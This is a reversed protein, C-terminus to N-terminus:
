RFARVYTNTTNVNSKVRFKFLRIQSRKVYGIAGNTFVVQYYGNIKQSNLILKTNKMLRGIRKGNGTADSYIYTLTKTKATRYLTVQPASSVKGNNKNKKPKTAVGYRFERDLKVCDAAVYGTGLSGTGYRIQYYGGSQGTVLVRTGTPAVTNAGYGPGTYIWTTSSIEGNSANDGSTTGGSTVSVYASRVYAYGGNYRIKYWEGVTDVITVSTGRAYQGLQIGQLSATSRIFLADATTVGYKIEPKQKKGAKVTLRCKAEYGNATIATITTKGKKKCTVIGFEDVSAVTPDSSTWYVVKNYADAPLVTAGLRFMKGEKKTLKTKNLTIGTTVQRVNVRVKDSVVGFHNDKATITIYCNGSGVTVIRETYTDYYAVKPNSTTWVVEKETTYDPNFQYGIQIKQGNYSTINHKDLTVAYPAAIVKVLIEARMGNYATAYVWTEGIAKAHIKGYSDVSLIADNSVSWTVKTDAPVTEGGNFVPSLTYDENLYLTTRDKEFRVDKVVTKIYVLAEATYISGDAMKMSATVTVLGAPADKAVTAVGKSDVTVYPSDSAWTIKGEIADEPSLKTEFAISTGPYVESREPTMSLSIGDGGVVIQIMGVAPTGYGDAGYGGSLCKAYIYTMGKGTATVKGNEDVVAVSEDESGWLLTKDYANQPEIVAKLQITEGIRKAYITEASDTDVRRVEVTEVPAKVLVEARAFADHEQGKEDVWRITGKVYTFGGSVATIKGESDISAIEPDDSEWTIGTYEANAPVPAASIFTSQGKWLEYRTESLEVGNVSQKVTVKIKARLGNYAAAYIYTTGPAKATVIGTANVSAVNENGSTWILATDYPLSNGGNWKVYGSLDDTNGTYIIMEDETFEISEADQLATVTLKASATLEGVTTTGTIIFRGAQLPTFSISDYNQTLIYDTNETAEQGDLTVTYTVEANKPAKIVGVQITEETVLEAMTEEFALSTRGYVTVLFAMESGDPAAATVYTIGEAVAVVSNGVIKAIAANETSWTVKGAVAQVDPLVKTETGGIQLVAEWIIDLSEETFGGQSVAVLFNVKSGDPATVTVTTNGKGQAYVIGDTVTAVSADETTWTFTAPDAQIAGCTDEVLKSLDKYADQASDLTLNIVRSEGDKLRVGSIDAAEVTVTFIVKTGDPANATVVATGAARAVLVGSLAAVISEDSNSWTIQDRLAKDNPNMPQTDDLAGTLSVTIYQWLDEIEKGVLKLAIQADEGEVTVKPAALVKVSVALESGDPATAIAATEGEAVAQVLYNGAIRAIGEELISWTVSGGDVTVEPLERSEKGTVDLQLVIQSSDFSDKDLFTGASVTVVFQVESGDPAEVTVITHGTSVAKVTGNAVVAVTENQSRWTFGKVDAGAVTTSAVANSLDKAANTKSDLTLNVINEGTLVVNAKVVARVLVTFTVYYGDKTYATVVATGPAAAEVVGDTVSAVEEKNVTWIIDTIDGDSVEVYERLNPEYAEGETMELVKKANETYRITVPAPETTDIVHFTFLVSQGALGAKVHVTGVKQFNVVRGTVDALASDSSTCIVDDLTYEGANELHLYADLNLSKQEKLDIDFETQAATLVMAAEVNVLFTVYYGDVTTATIVTSGASIGKVVGDTATATGEDASSWSVDTIDGGTVEVYERLNVPYLQGELINLIKQEETVGDAYDITVPDPETTDIVHFTFLVSQGALEAKVYVTGPTNFTVIGGDVAALEGSVVTYETADLSEGNANELNLYTRLNFTKQEKLDIDFETKSAGFKVGAKVLVTFTVYYGDKTSATVVATGPAAAKVVGDTVKAVSTDDVSWVIDTIDGDSVEVYERLNPEYAEGETMELVKKANEAYDITVPDPETTDTVYFTFIVHAGGNEARVYAVGTNGAFEVVGNGDVTLIEGNFGTYVTEEKKGNKVTLLTSLDYTGDKVDKLDVHFERVKATMSVPEVYVSFNVYQGNPLTASVVATGEAKAVIVGNTVDAAEPNSSGWVLDSLDGNTVTVNANVDAAQGLVTFHLETNGAAEVTMDDASVTKTVHFVLYVTSSGKDTEATVKLRYYGPKTFTAVGANIEVGEESCTYRIDGPEANKVDLVSDLRFIKSDEVGLNLDFETQSATVVPRADRVRVVFNAYSGSAVTATVVTTGEAKAVIVGNAVDAAEPNSSSWVVDALTGNTVTVRDSVDEAAGIEDFTVEGGGAITIDSADVTKAVHFVLDVSDSGQASSATATVYYCGAKTFTVVGNADVAAEQPNSSEYTVDDFSGNEVKLVSKLNFELSTGVGMDLDFETKAAGLKVGAKVEALFTVYYGDVTTATIVTSGASIGKVVGDTVTATGEDASSWIVDTIKGDTVKIRRNLNDPYLQGELIELVTQDETVGDAYDITVPNPETTDIVHFTFLVSQGALEAKVYVTGPANFAVVGEAVTALEESVVTYETDALSEGDANELKLYTKLNFNKQEKLDIDFETKSAGFKVGAKILVTFTVYYGDKTSATVVATGPAAAKVVGDTVEAVSTDDVSWVVDTIDGGSVKVYERLNPAYAEGETLELIREANDTYRIAVPNPETTDTVYFTFIVHAGGNEARVYTVGTNGEFTVVGDADVNLIEPNFGTYVTKEKEGNKVTVLTSLDYTGDKVDKLDVRFERVKATMSVPEVYVSFNVYQGNPLTASIVATGEAKAVIVGNTVDAAEPNSSSWTLDSLAGNTVTVQDNVDMAQGSVTFHLEQGGEVTMGDASVTKAVHFVLYVSSSGKENQATVKLRYYGPEAFTAVGADIEVGEGSCVYSIDGPEANKVDLVSDLRFIKSEEAGLDLDFETQSATVVPRADRVRVVFNAYSGGAVTATVVATGEAKAIIVGNAVDAVEPNSTNWVVDALTGNTVTVKGSLDEATGIEELTVEEGGAITIDSSGVTKAVHFVLGVSDSGQSNSVTATVYYYGAKTFTVTGDEVSAAPSSTQYTVDAFSGNEVKLVSKLNFAVSTEAGMDLDFEEQKAQIEPQSVAPEETVTLLISDSNGNPLSATIEAFGAKVALVAGSQSVFAVEPDSSEWSLADTGYTGGSVRAVISMTEGVKMGTQAARLIVKSADSREDKVRFTVWAEAGTVTVKVRVVGAQTFKMIGDTVSANQGAATNEDVMYAPREETNVATVITNLNFTPEADADTLALEFEEGALIIGPQDVDSVVIEVKKERHYEIGNAITYEVSVTVVAKGAKLCEYKGDDSVSVIDEASSVYSFVAGQAESQDLLARAVIEGSEGAKAQITKDYGDGLELSFDHEEVTVTIKKHVTYDYYTATMTIYTEGASQFHYNGDGDVVVVQENASEFGVSLGGDDTVDVGSDLSARYDITGEDGPKGTISSDAAIDLEVDLVPAAYSTLATPPLVTLVMSASLVCALVRAPMGKKKSRM